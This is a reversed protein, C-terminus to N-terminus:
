RSLTATTGALTGRRRPVLTLLPNGRVAGVGMGGILAVAAVAVLQKLLRM